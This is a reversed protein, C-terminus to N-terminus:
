RLVVGAISVLSGFTADAPCQAYGTVEGRCDGLFRLTLYVPPLGCVRRCDREKLLPALFAEPRGTCLADLLESDAEAIAAKGAADIAQEEGFAPGMHALDAAAVVLVRRGATTERLAALAHQFPAYTAADDQGETFPHFSGVLLPVLPTHKGDLLHQLWVVALEIAHEDRHNLEQAYAADEGLAAAVADVAAGDTPLAGRPTAYAQRTPTISGARGHHDTGFIVVVDSARVAPGLRHWLDAYVQAGRAYDIHPTVVGRVDGTMPPAGSARRGAEDLWRDLQVALADADAPYCRGALAPTRYTAARYRARLAAYAAHYTPSDLLLADDLRTVLDEIDRPRLTQGTRMQYGLRIARLDRDGDFLSLLMAVAPPVALIQDTLALPDRLILMPGNDAQVWRPEIARLRPRTYSDDAVMPREAAM